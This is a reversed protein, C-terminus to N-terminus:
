LLISFIHFQSRWGHAGEMRGAFWPTLLVDFDYWHGREYVTRQRVRLM